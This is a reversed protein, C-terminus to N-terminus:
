KINGGTGRLVFSVQSHVHFFTAPFSVRAVPCLYIMETNVTVQHILSVMMEVVSCCLIFLVCPIIIFNIIYVSPQLSGMIMMMHYLTYLEM